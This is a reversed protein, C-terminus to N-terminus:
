LFKRKLFGQENILIGDDAAKDRLLLLLLAAKLARRYLLEPVPNDVARDKIGLL